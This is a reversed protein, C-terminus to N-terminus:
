IEGIDRHALPLCMLLRHELPPLARVRPEGLRLRDAFTQSGIERRSIRLQRRSIGIERRSIRRHLM